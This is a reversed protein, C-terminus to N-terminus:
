AWHTDLGVEFKIRHVLENEISREVKAAGGLSALAVIFGSSDKGGKSAMLAVDFEIGRHVKVRDGVNCQLSFVNYEGNPKLERNAGRVAEAVKVLARQVFDKLQIGEIKGRETAVRAGGAVM